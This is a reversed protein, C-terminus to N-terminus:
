VPLVDLPAQDLSLLRCMFASPKPARTVRGGAKSEALVLRSTVKVIRIGEINDVYRVGFFVRGVCTRYARCERITAGQVEERM